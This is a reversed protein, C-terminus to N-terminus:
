EVVTGNLCGQVDVVTACLQFDGAELPLLEKNFRQPVNRVRVKNDGVVLEWEIDPGHVRSDVPQGFIDKPTATVHGVCGMPLQRASNLPPDRDECTIRFFGVDVRHVTTAPDLPFSAPTCKSRYSGDGRLLHDSSQILDYKESFENSDKVDVLGEVDLDSCFGADRLEGIIINFFRGVDRVLFAGPSKEDNMDFLGPNDEVIRSVADLVDDRFEPATRRDCDHSLHGAGIPCAALGFPPPTAGPVPTPTPTPTPTSAPPATTTPTSPATPTSSGGGCAAAVIMAAVVAVGLAWPGSERFTM